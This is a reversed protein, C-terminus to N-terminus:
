VRWTAVDEERYSVPEGGRLQWLGYKLTLGVLRPEDPNARAYSAALHRLLSPNRRFRAVQGNVEAPRLGLDQTRVEFTAGNVDTGELKVTNIVDDLANTTSYMRMPGFPFHDDDGWAAGAFLAGIVVLTAVGRLRRGSATVGRLSRPAVARSGIPGAAGM